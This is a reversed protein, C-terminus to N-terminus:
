IRITVWDAIDEPKFKGRSLMNNVVEKVTHIAAPHMMMFMDVGALLLTLATITEWLPGRMERPEWEPGLKMWAERAAWANTSGSSTPHQLEIDGGLAALRAREHITYSYEIGYGLAATTLDMVISDRPLYEYLRRNLEKARNLEMATFALVVHNHERAASAVEGLVGADAMDLTVSSLMVREGHAVEAVRKFVEADKKPDGCGGVIVPVDVAQLVNEITKAADSPPTNKILPDTSILHVTVMDAGFKEVALKAWAAPDGIVDQVHVKLARPLSVEMDFVDASIAPPNPPVEEFLYFSPASEGGVKVVKGRSGGESRNAGLKVEIIKGPYAQVPPKFEAKLIEVPKEPLARPPAVAPLSPQIPIASPVLTPIFIELEEAHIEVDELEVEGLKSLLELLKPGIKILAGIEEKKEKKNESGM